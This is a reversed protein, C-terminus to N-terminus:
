ETKLLYIKPSAFDNEFVKLPNLNGVLAFLILSIYMKIGIRAIFLKTQIKNLNTSFLLKQRWAIMLLKKDQM